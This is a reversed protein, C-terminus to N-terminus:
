LISLQVLLLYSSLLSTRRPFGIFFRVYGAGPNNRYRCYEEDKENWLMFEARNFDNLKMTGDEAVLFQELTL